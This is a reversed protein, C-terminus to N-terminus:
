RDFKLNENIYINNDSISLITIEKKKLTLIILDDQVDKDVDTIAYMGIKRSGFDYASFGEIKLTKNHM